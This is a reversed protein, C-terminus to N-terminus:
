GEERVTLLGSACAGRESQLAFDFTKIDKRKVILTVWQKPLIPQQFKLRKISGDVKVGFARAVMERVTFLQAVGPLIPANPFHGQFYIADSPYAFIVELTEGQFSWSAILPSQRSSEFLPLVDKQPLKGQANYPLHSVCRFRRPVATSPLVQAAFQRLERAFAQYGQLRAIERGKESPVVLMWIRAVGERSAIAHCNDVWECKGMEHEIADLSVMHELIKVQRDLRGHYLFTRCTEDLFTVADNLVYPTSVCFPSDVSLGGSAALAVSVGDFVTWVDGRAYQRWAVSGTETSGYIEIPCVGLLETIGMSIEPRLLSGSTFIAKIHHERPIMQPHALLEALFSPTTVFVISSYRKQVELFTEWSTVQELHRPAELLPVLTELWLMGYMHQSGISAVFTPKDAFIEAFARSLMQADLSLSALTKQIVKPTGTSGSTNFVVVKNM